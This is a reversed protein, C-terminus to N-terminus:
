LCAVLTDLAQDLLDEAITLPPTLSLVQGREGSPLVLVGRRLAERTVAMAREASELEVGIMLGRGRVDVARAGALRQMAREGLRRARGPLDRDQLEALAALGAACAGPHGLFTSTHLAEGTARPWRGLSTDGGACASLPMGGGLAKGICLLDPVVGEHDVAFWRGTRGLGTMVEDAILLLGHEDCTRRLESVFGAPPVVVGGRGQIPEVIIAGTAPLGSSPSSLKRRLEGLVRDAAEPTRPFELFTTAGGLRGAFPDRFDRRSTVSLAGGSLGHYAGEFAIVGAKGTVLEACKLAAEVADSGNTGLVFRGLGRPTVAGLAELLAVKIAPPHVDGMGHLMRRAQLAVADAVRPNSHGVSMVGFAATLDTYRNGDVDMVTADHAEAWFIPWDPELTTVGPSEVRALAVALERSRPGIM